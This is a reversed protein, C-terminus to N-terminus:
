ALSCLYNTPQEQAPIRGTVFIHAEPQRCIIGECLVVQTLLDPVNSPIQYLFYLEYVAEGVGFLYM